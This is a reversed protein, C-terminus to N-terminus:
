DKRIDNWTIPQGQQIDRVAKKAMAKASGEPSIGDEPKILVTNGPMLKEGKRIFRGAKLGRRGTKRCEMEDRGLKKMSRGLCKEVIRIKRAMLSFEQMDLSLKHDPGPLDKDITFHKEIIDAGLGVAAFATEPIASHDSFGVPCHFMHKLTPIFKLHTDAYKPPYVAVCHLLAFNKLNEKEKLWSVAQSIEELTAMGTSLILPLGTASAKQILQKYTIDGSSIKLAPVGAKFLFSVMPIDFVSTLFIIGCRKAEKMLLHHAKPSLQLARYMDFSSKTGGTIGEVRKTEQLTRVCMFEARFSQFKVADAGCKKAASIMKLALGIDGNHNVGAEAIIFTRGKGITKHAIKM